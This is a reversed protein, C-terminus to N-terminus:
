LQTFWVQAKTAPTVKGSKAAGRVRKKTDLSLRVTDAPRGKAKVITFAAHMRQNRLVPLGYVTDILKGLELAGLEPCRQVTFLQNAQKRLNTLVETKVDRGHTRWDELSEM